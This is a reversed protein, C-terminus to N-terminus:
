DRLGETGEEKHGRAPADDGSALHMQQADRQDADILISSWTGGLRDMALRVGDPRCREVIESRLKWQTREHELLRQHLLVTERAAEIRQQRCVLLGCATGGMVLIILLVKAFM